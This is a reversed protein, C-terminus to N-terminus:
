KPFWGGGQVAFYITSQNPGAVKRCEMGPIKHQYSAIRKTALKPVLKEMLDSFLYMTVATAQSLDYRTADGVVIRIRGGVGSATVNREAVAAVKTDVEIGVARCGYQRVAAILIRGDGCGLDYLIDETTLHLGRLMLEVAQHPTSAIPVNSPIRRATGRANILYYGPMPGFTRNCMEDYPNYCDRAEAAACLLLVLLLSIRKM